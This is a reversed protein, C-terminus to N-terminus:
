KAKWQKIEIEHVRDEIRQLSAKQNSVETLLQAMTINLANIANTATRIETTAWSAIVLFLFQALSIIKKFVDSDM